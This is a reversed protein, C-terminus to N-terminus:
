ARRARPPWHGGYLRPMAALACEAGAVYTWALTPVPAEVTLLVRRYLGPVAPDYDEFADIPALAAVPDGLTLLEGHIREWSCRERAAVPDSGQHRTTPTLSCALKADALADAGGTALVDRERVELVPYGAAHLYLRGCVTAREAAIMTSCYRDHAVQGRKLTGYVFLRLRDSAGDRKHSIPLLTGDTTGNTLVRGTRHEPDGEM